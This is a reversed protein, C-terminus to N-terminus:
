ELKTLMEKVMAACMKAYPNEAVALKKALSNGYKAGNELDLAAAEVEATDDPQARSKKLLGRQTYAQSLTRSDQTSHGYHIAQDLDALAKEVQGAM